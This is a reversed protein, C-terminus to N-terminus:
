PTKPTIGLKEALGDLVKQVTAPLDNIVQVRRTRFAKTIQVSEIVSSLYARIVESRARVENIFDAKKESKSNAAFVMEVVRDIDEKTM